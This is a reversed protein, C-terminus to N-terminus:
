CRLGSDLFRPGSDKDIIERYDIVLEQLDNFDNLQNHENITIFNLPNNIEHAIGAALQGIMEMKSAHQLKDTLTKKEDDAIKKAM